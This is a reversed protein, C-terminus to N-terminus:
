NGSYGDKFQDAITYEFMGGIYAPSESNMSCYYIGNELVENELGVGTIAYMGMMIVSYTIYVNGDINMDALNMEVANMEDFTLGAAVYSYYNLVCSPDALTIVSYQDETTVDGLVYVQMEKYLKDADAQTVEGDSDVDALS